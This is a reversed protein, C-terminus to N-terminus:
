YIKIKSGDEQLLYLGDELLLYNGDGGGRGYSVLWEQQQLYQIRKNTLENIYSNYKNVQENIPLNSIEKLQIFQPWLLENFIDM